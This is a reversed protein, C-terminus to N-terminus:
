SGTTSRHTRAVGLFRQMVLAFRPATLDRLGGHFFAILTMLLGSSLAAVVLLIRTTTMM